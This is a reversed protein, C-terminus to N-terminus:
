NEIDIYQKKVKKSNFIDHMKTIFIKFLEFTYSTYHFDQIKRIKVGQM